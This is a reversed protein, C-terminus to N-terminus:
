LTSKENFNTPFAKTEKSYSTAKPDIIEDCTIVSDDIISAIFLYFVTAGM